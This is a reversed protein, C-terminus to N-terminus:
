QILEKLLQPIYNVADCSVNVYRKDELWVEHTHGHVNISFRDFQDEHVPCHALLAGKYKIMGCVVNVYKLLDPIHSPKDHNGLVVKKIGNLKNLLPYYISKSMTIDGLIWVTDRKDVISNWKSIIHNDHEESSEFGRHLAINKHGFHLDSIVYINNM